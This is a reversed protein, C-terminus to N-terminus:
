QDRRWLNIPSQTQEYTLLGAHGDCFLYAGRGPHPSGGYAVFESGRTLNSHEYILNGTVPSKYYYAYLDAAEAVMITTAPKTIEPIRIQIVNGFIGQTYEGGSAWGTNGAYTIRCDFGASNLRTNRDSPCRFVKLDQIYGSVSAGNGSANYWQGTLLVARWGWQTAWGSETINGKPLYEDWDQAYMLLALGVQKMNNLCAAQKSKEMAQKLAPLLMAALLSIIAIVVLLEVLTFFHQNGFASKDATTGSLPISHRISTM